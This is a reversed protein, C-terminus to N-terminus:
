ILITLKKDKKDMWDYQLVNVHHDVDVLCIVLM